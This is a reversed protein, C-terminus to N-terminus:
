CVPSSSIFSIYEALRGNRVARGGAACGCEVSARM